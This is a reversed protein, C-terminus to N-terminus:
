TAFSDRSHSASYASHLQMANPLLFLAITMLNNRLHVASHRWSGVRPQMGLSRGVSLSGTFTLVMILGRLVESIRDAADLAPRAGQASM